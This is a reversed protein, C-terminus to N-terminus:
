MTWQCHYHKICTVSLTLGTTGQYYKWVIIVCKYPQACPLHHLCSTSHKYRSPINTITTPSQTATEKPVLTEIYHDSRPSSVADIKQKNSNHIELIRSYPSDCFCVNFLMYNHSLQTKTHCVRYTLLSLLALTAGWGPSWLVPPPPYHSAMKYRKNIQIHIMLLTGWWYGRQVWEVNDVVVVLGADM